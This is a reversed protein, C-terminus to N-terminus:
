YIIYKQKNERIEEKLEDGRLAEIVEDPHKMGIKSLVEKLQSVTVEQLEPYKNSLMQFTELFESTTNIDEPLTGMLESERDKKGRTEELHRELRNGLRTEKKVEESKIRDSLRDALKSADDNENKAM